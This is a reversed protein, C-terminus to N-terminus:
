ANSDGESVSLRGARVWQGSRVLARCLNAPTVRDPRGFDVCRFRQCLRAVLDSCFMEGISPSTLNLLRILTTGSKIAGFMSYDVHDFLVHAAVKKAVDIESRSLSSIPTLRLIEVRGGKAEIERVREAPDHIQVGRVVAERYICPLSALSTSELWDLEAPRIPSPTAIAVHCPGIRLGRPAFPWATRYQIVRSVADVGWVALVDYPELQPKTKQSNVALSHM